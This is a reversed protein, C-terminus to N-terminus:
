ERGYIELMDPYETFYYHAWIFLHNFLAALLAARSQFALGIAWLALFGFIYMANPTWAFIGERVLPLERSVEPDFHDVGLARPMKFYRLFSYALYAFLGLCVALLPLNLWLPIPLTGRDAYGLALITLPRALLLAMFGVAWVDFAKEGLLRSLWGYYLEGRWCVVVYFQHLIPVLLALVLWAPTSIGWLSGKLGPVRAAIGVLGALVVASLLHYGQRSLIKM